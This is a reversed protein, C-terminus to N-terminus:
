GTAQTLSGKIAACTRPADTLSGATMADRFDEIVDLDHRVEVTTIDLGATRAAAMTLDAVDARGMQIGSFLEPTAQTTGLMTYGGDHAPGLVAPWEDLLDTAQRLLVPGVTPCDAGLLVVRDAGDAFARGQAAALREAFSTGVQACLRIGPGVVGRLTDHDGSYSVVIRDTVAAVNDLSDCLMAAAVHAAIREGVRAALRTKVLGPVPAKAMVVITVDRSRVTSMAPLVCPTLPSVVTTGGYGWQCWRMM